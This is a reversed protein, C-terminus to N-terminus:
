VVGASIVDDDDDDDDGGSSDGEDSGSLVVAGQGRGGPQCHLQAPQRECPRFSYGCYGHPEGSSRGPEGRGAAGATQGGIPRCLVYAAKQSSWM